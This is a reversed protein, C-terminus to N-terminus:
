CKELTQHTKSLTKSLKKSREQKKKLFRSAAKMKVKTKSFIQSKQQRNSQTSNSRPGKKLSIKSITMTTMITILPNSSHLKNSLQHNNAKKKLNITMSILTGTTMQKKLHHNKRRRMPNLHYKMILSDIGKWSIRKELSIELITKRTKVL